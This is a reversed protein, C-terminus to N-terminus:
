NNVSEFRFTSCTITLVVSSSFQLEHEVLGGDSLRVEHMLVDGCGNLLAPAGDKSQMSFGTVGSYDFQLLKDHFPGLFELELALSRFQKRDGTGNERLVLHNLWADHLSSPDSLDYHCFNYAFEFVGEPFKTRNSELFSFYDEM